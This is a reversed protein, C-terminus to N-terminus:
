CDAEAEGEQAGSAWRGGGEDPGGEGSGHGPAWVDAGLQGAAPAWAMTAATAGRTPARQSAAEARSGICTVPPRACPIRRSSDCGAAVMRSVPDWRAV